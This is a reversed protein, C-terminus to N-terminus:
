DYRLNDGELVPMRGAVLESLAFYIADAPPPCGPVQLDVTVVERVAKVREHLVALEPDNPVAGDVTSATDIYGYRLCEATDLPNRMSPIGGFCACDGLAILIKSERRMERAVDENASNAVAGELIGVDAGRPRKLDTVPTATLEVAETLAVLREDLDLLSMHCGACGCLWDSAIKIKAM